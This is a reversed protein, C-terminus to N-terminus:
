DGTRPDGKAKPRLDYAFLNDQERLYLHGGAIVPASWSFQRVDPIQFSGHEKYAGPDAEILVMLGNEYRFYFREDAYAVAASGRGKNRIPGWTVNGDAMTVSLPFGKKHGTGSFIHGDHLIFGGHHNQMTQPDLFYVEEASLNKGEGKIHVLASGTNYGTSVFVYDGDVVPTSINAVNNAVGAYHWLLRGDNADVGIVGRGLLQVYQYVGAAHSVVASSYGTGDAGKSGLDREGKATRWLEKGTAKDLAVMLADDAGPTVIVRNGDVLPSESFKWSYQGMAQMLNAGFDAKIDKSWVLKGDAAKLCVLLGETSLAYLHDGDLTPTSRAGIYEDDWGPGIHTKWVSSGDKASRAHVYQKDGVDGLTYIHDGVVALSSYGTGLGDSRWALPPGAEPWSKLLGTESSRGDRNEGRWQPWDDATLPTAIATLFALGVLINRTHFDM